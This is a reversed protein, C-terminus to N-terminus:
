GGAFGPTFVYERVSPDFSRTQERTEANYALHGEQVLRNFEREAEEPTIATRDGWKIATHGTADM